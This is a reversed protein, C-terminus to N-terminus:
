NHKQIISERASKEKSESEEVLKSYSKHFEEDAKTRAENILADAKKQAELLVGSAEHEVDILHKIVDIEEAAM